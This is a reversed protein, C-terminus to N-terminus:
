FSGPVLYHINSVDTKVTALALHELTLQLWLRQAKVDSRCYLLNTALSM